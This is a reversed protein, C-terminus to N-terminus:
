DAQSKLCLLMRVNYFKYDVVVYLNRNIVETKALCTSFIIGTSIVSNGGDKIDEHHGQPM